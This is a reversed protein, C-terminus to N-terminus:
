DTPLTRPVRPGKGSCGCGKHASGGPNPHAAGPGNRWEAECAAVIEARHEPQNIWFTAFAHGLREGAEVDSPFSTGAMVRNHGLVRATEHIADRNGPQFQHLIHAEVHSLAATCSPYSAGEALEVPKLGPYAAGPRPRGFRNKLAQIVPHLDRRAHELLASTLPFDRIALREGMAPLYCGLTPLRQAAIRDVESQTRAHELWEVVALDGIAQASGPQPYPGVIAQWDPEAAGLMAGAALLAGAAFLSRFRM